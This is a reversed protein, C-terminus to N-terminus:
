SADSELQAVPYGLIDLGNALFDALLPTGALYRATHRNHARAAEAKVQQWEEAAYDDRGMWMLAVLEIKEDENCSNISGAIEALVPDDPHDELVEIMRDDSANSGPDRKSPADKADFERAKEILFVVKEPSITLEVPEAVRDM